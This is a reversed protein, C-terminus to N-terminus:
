EGPTLHSFDFDVTVGQETVTVEKEVSGLSEHWATLKYKGPPVDGIKYGGQKSTVSFYANEAVVIWATMWSHLDCEVKVIEPEDMEHEYADQNPVFMMNIPDNEFSYTHINHNIPDSSTIFLSTEKKMAIVHPEYRCNKQDLHVEKSKGKLKKGTLTVVVNMLKSNDVLLSEEPVEAGCAKKFKGTKIAPAQKFKASYLATGKITGATALSTFLPVTIFLFFVIRM